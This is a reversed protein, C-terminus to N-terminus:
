VYVIFLHSMNERLDFAYIYQDNPILQCQYWM